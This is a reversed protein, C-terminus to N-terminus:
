QHFSSNTIDGDTANRENHPVLDAVQDALLELNEEALLPLARRVEHLHEIDLPVLATEVKDGLRCIWEGTPDIVGSGGWFRFPEELGVRNAFVVYVGFLIAYARLLADWQRRNESRIDASNAIAILVDVEQRAYFYPVLVHWADNCIMVGTRIGHIRQVMFGHGKAFREAENFPPYLVPYNKRQVVLEGNGVTVAANYLGEAAREAFGAILVTRPPVLVSQAVDAATMAAAHWQNPELKYGTLALEPTVAIIRQRDQVIRALAAGVRVANAGADGPVPSDQLLAVGVVTGDVRM